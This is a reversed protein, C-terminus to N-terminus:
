AVYRSGGRHSPHHPSAAGGLSSGGGISPDYRTVSSRATPGRLGGEPPAISVHLPVGRQRSTIPLVVALNSPGINFSDVSIVLVPRRGAQEHGISPDLDALWVDGRAPDVGTSMVSAGIRGVASPHRRRGVAGDPGIRGGTYRGLTPTRITRGGVGSPGGADATYGANVAGSFRRNYYDEVAQELEDGAPRGSREALERLKRHTEDSITTMDAM